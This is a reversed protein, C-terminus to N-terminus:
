GSVRDASVSAPECPASYSLVFALSVAALAFLALLGGGIKYRLKM